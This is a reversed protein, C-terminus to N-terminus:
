HLPPLRQQPPQRHLQKLQKLSGKPERETTKKLATEALIAGDGAISVNAHRWQDQRDQLDRKHDAMEKARAM